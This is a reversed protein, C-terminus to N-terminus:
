IGFLREGPSDFVALQYSLLNRPLGELLDRLAVAIVGAVRLAREFAPSCLPKPVGPLSECLTRVVAADRVSQM